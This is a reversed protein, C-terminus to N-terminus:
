PATTKANSSKEISHRRWGHLTLESSTTITRRALMGCLALDARSLDGPYDSFDGALIKCFREEDNGSIVVVGPKGLSQALMRNCLATIQEQRAM